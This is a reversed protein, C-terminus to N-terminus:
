VLVRYRKTSATSRVSAPACGDTTAYRGHKSQPSTRSYPHHHYEKQQGPFPFSRLLDMTTATLGRKKPPLPPPVDSASPSASTPSGDENIVVYRSHLDEPTAPSPSDGSSSSSSSSSRSSVSSSSPSTPSRTSPRTVSVSSRKHNRSKVPLPPPIDLSDESSQRSKDGSYLFFKSSSANVAQKVSPLSSSCSRSRGSSNPSSRRASEEQEKLEVAWELGEWLSLIDNETVGLDWELVALFEREIRGVDRKGFVGTCLAWHVNKLTSDNAYKSAVILAGLFVRELAWEELAIHLYPRARHIYVLALLLTPTIIEARTIVTTAFSSFKQQVPSRQRSSPFQTAKSSSSAILHQSLSIGVLKLTQPTHTADDMLSHPNISPSSSASSASSATSGSSSFLPSPQPSAMTLDIPSTATM